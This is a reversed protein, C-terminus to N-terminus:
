QLMSNSGIEAQKLDDSGINASQSSESTVYSLILPFREFRGLVTVFSFIGWHGSSDQLSDKLLDELGQSLDVGAVGVFM